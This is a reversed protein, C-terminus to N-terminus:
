FCFKQSLKETEKFYCNTSLILSNDLYLLTHCIVLKIQLKVKVYDFLIKTERRISQNITTLSM